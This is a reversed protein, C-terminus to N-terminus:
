TYSCIPLDQNLGQLSKAPCTYPGAIDKYTEDSAHFFGNKVYIESGDRSVQYSRPHLIRIGDTAKSGKSPVCQEFVFATMPHEGHHYSCDTLKYKAVFDGRSYCILNKGDQLYTMATSCRRPTGAWSLPVFAAALCLLVLNLVKLQM